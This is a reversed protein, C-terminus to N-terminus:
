LCHKKDTNVSILQYGARLVNDILELLILQGACRVKM